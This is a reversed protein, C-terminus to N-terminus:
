KLEQINCDCSFIGVPKISFKQEVAKATTSTTPLNHVEIEVNRVMFSPNLKTTIPTKETPYRHLRNSTSKYLKDTLCYLKKNYMLFESPTYFKGTTFKITRLRYCLIHLGGDTTFFTTLPLQYKHTVATFTKKSTM